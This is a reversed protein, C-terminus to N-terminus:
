VLVLPTFWVDFKRPISRELAMWKKEENSTYMRLSLETGEEIHLTAANEQAVRAENGRHPRVEIRPELRASQPLCNRLQEAITNIRQEISEIARMADRRVEEQNSNMQERAEHLLDIHTELRQGIDRLCEIEESARTQIDNSSSSQAHGRQPVWLLFLILIRLM